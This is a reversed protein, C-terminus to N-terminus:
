ALYALHRVERPNYSTNSSTFASTLTKHDTFISFPRSELFHCFHKVSLYAALLEGGGGFPGYRGEPPLRKKSFFALPGWIGKRLQKMAVGFAVGSSDVMLSTPVGYELYELITADALAKKTDTFAATAADFWTLTSPVLMDKLPRLKSAFHPLFPRYANVLGLFHRLQSLSEPCRFDAIAQVKPPSPRIGQSDVLNGLLELSALLVRM